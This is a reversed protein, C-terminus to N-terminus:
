AGAAATEDITVPPDSASGGHEGSNNPRTPTQGNEPPTGPPQTPDEADQDEDAPPVPQGEGEAAPLDLMAPPAAHEAATEADGPPDEGANAQLWDLMAKGDVGFMDATISGTFAPLCDECLTVTDGNALFTGVFVAQKGDNSMCAPAAM